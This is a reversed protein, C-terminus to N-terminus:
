KVEWPKANQTLAMASQLLDLGHEELWDSVNEYDSVDPLAKAAQVLSEVSLIPISKYTPVHGYEDGEVFEGANGELWDKRGKHDFLRIDVGIVQECTKCGPYIDICVTTKSDNPTFVVEGRVEGCICECM